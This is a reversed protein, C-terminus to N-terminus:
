LQPPNADDVYGQNLEIINGEPDAIWCVKMGLIFAGMDVPGLTIKADTGIESLKADLDDVLFCIHKWGPYDQGSGDPPPVQSEKTSKFLELYISGSKIMVVQDLGPAYVRSRKFGFYKTYFREIVIPDLCSIGVHSFSFVSM